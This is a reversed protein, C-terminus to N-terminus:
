SSVAAFLVTGVLAPIALNQFWNREPVYTEWKVQPIVEQYIEPQEPHAAQVSQRQQEIGRAYGAPMVVMSGDPMVVEVSGPPVVTDQGMYSVNM